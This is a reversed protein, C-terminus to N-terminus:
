KFPPVYTELFNVPLDMGLSAFYAKWESSTVDGNLYDYWDGCCQCNNCCEGDNCDECLEDCDCDDQHKADCHNYPRKRKIENQLIERMGRCLSRPCMVWDPCNTSQGFLKKFQRSLKQITHITELNDLCNKSQESTKSCIYEKVCFSEPNAFFNGPLLAVVSGHNKQIQDVSM